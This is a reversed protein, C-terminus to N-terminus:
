QYAGNVYGLKAWHFNLLNVHEPVGVVHADEHKAPPLPPPPPPRNQPPM